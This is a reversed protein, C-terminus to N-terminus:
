SALEQVFARDRNASKPDRYRVIRASGKAIQERVQRLSLPHKLMENVALFADKNKETMLGSSEARALYSKTQLKKFASM